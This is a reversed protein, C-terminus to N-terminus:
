AAKRIDTGKEVTSLQDKKEGISSKEPNVINVSIGVIFSFAVIFALIAALTWQNLIGFIVAVAMMLYVEALIGLPMLMGALALWSIM